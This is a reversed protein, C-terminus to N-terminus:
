QLVIKGKQSKLLLYNKEIENYLLLTDSFTELLFLKIWNVSGRLRARKDLLNLLVEGSCVTSGYFTTFELYKLISSICASFSCSLFFERDKKWIFAHENFLFKSSRSYRSFHVFLDNSIIATLSVVIELFVEKVQLM